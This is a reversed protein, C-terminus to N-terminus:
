LDAGALSLLHEVMDESPQHKELIRDVRYRTMMARIGKMIYHRSVIGKGGGLEALLIAYDDYAEQDGIEYLYAVVFFCASSSAFNM